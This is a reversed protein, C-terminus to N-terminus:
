LTPWLLSLAIYVLVSTAVPIILNPAPDNKLDRLAKAFEKKISFAEKNKKM